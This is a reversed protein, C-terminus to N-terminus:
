ASVFTLALFYQTNFDKTNFFRPDPPLNGLRQLYFPNHFQRAFKLIIKQFIANKLMNKNLDKGLLM